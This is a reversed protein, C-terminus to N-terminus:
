RTGVGTLVGTLWLVLAAALLLLVLLVLWRRRSSRPRSSAPIPAPREEPPLARKAASRRDIWVGTQTLAVSRDDSEGDEDMLEAQYEETTDFVIESASGAREGGALAGLDITTDSMADELILDDAREPPAMDKKADTEARQRKERAVPTPEPAVDREALYVMGMAGEALKRVLKYDGLQGLEPQAQQPAGRLGLGEVSVGHPLEHPQEVEVRPASPRVTVQKSVAVWSTLRTSLQFEIGTAEITANLERADGRATLAMELDEVKERGFLAAVARPGQGRALAPVRLRREFPGDATRGRVVIEGGEGVLRTSILAPAEAYLDPLQRPAVELVAAGEVVLDTVIPATTRAVLRGVPREADEDLGVILETGRGARAVAQTLSRNVASGVGVTHLRAAAPLDELLARVIEQEFGILGDTLLVVQRQSGPRLPKLAELVARHMETGGGASLKSVWKLAAQKNSETASAPAQQWRKPSSGFEILELRDNVGLTDIMLAVVRKAQELPRGGMSGSTDILFTLDRPVASWGGTPPAITLLAFADGDHAATEPRAALVNCSVDPLAVPWSVVVDRDLRASGDAEFRVDNGRMEVAHSPSEAAGTLADAITLSLTTRAGLPADSLPVSLRGADAVRGPAGQYRPAVVTPFRWEWAGEELWRLPQDVIVEAVVESLPPVNGVRQSFLSTREQELLAATRGQSIAQQFRERAAQKGTVEGVVRQDGLVFSFGSVAGDSPLPLLYRVELPQEYPNRFRQTLVVRAIGGGAEAALHVSELPLERGDTAVLRGGNSTSTKTDIPATMIM